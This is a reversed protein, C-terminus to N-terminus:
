GIDIIWTIFNVRFRKLLQTMCVWPPLNYPILVVPWTSHSTSLDGFPNFEDIPFGLRFNLPDLAFQPNMLDINKWTKSDSLHRLIGEHTNRPIYYFFKSYMYIIKLANLGFSCNPKKCWGEVKIVFYFPYINCFVIPVSCM